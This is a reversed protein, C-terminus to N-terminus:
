NKTCVQDYVAFYTCFTLVHKIADTLQSTTKPKVARVSLIEVKVTKRLSSSLFSFFIAVSFNGLCGGGAIVTLVIRTRSKDVDTLADTFSGYDLTYCDILLYATAYQFKTLSQM